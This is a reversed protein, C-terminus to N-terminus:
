SRINHGVPVHVQLATVSAIHKCIADQLANKEDHEAAEALALIFTPDLESVYSADILVIFLSLICDSM